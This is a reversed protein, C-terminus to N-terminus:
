CKLLNLNKVHDNTNKQTTITMLTLGASAECAGLAIMIIPTSTTNTNNISSTAMSLFLILTMSEMCLLMSMLHARNMSIGLLSLLFASTTTFYVYMM